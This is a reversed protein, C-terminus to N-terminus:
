GKMAGAERLLKVINLHEIKEALSLATDKDRDRHNINAGAELLLKVAEISGSNAAAMLATWGEDTKANVKAGAKILLRIVQYSSTAQAIIQGQLDVAIARVGGTGLDLGIVIDAM